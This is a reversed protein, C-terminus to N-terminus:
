SDQHSTRSSTTLIPWLTVALTPAWDTPLRDRFASGAIAAGIIIEVILDQDLDPPFAGASVGRAFFEELTNMRPTLLSARWGAIFDDDSSLLHGVLAYGVQNEFTDQVGAIMQTFGDLTPEAATWPMPAIQAAVGALLEFRDKYRRYLTTRAVGSAVSVADMTVAAPGSERLLQMVATAIKADTHQRPRSRGDVKAPQESNM